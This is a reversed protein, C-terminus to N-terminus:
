REGGIEPVEVEGLAESDETVGEERIGEGGLEDGVEVVKTPGLEEVIGARWAMARKRWDHSAM